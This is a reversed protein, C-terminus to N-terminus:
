AVAVLGHSRLSSSCADAAITKRTDAPIESIDVRSLIHPLFLFAEGLAAEGVPFSAGEESFSHGM